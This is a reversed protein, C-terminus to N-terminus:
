RLLLFNGNCNVKLYDYIDVFSLSVHECHDMITDRNHLNNVSVVNAVM